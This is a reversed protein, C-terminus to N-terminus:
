GRYFSSIEFAIVKNEDTKTSITFIEYAKGNDARGHVRNLINWDENQKGYREELWHYEMSIGQQTTSADIGVVEDPRREAMVPQEKEAPCKTQKQNIATMVFNLAKEADEKTLKGDSYVKISEIWQAKHEEMADSSETDANSIGIFIRGKAHILTRKAEDLSVKRNLLSFLQATEADIQEEGGPFTADMIKGFIKSTIAEDKRKKFFRMKLDECNLHKEDDILGAFEVIM